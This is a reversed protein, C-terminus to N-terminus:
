ESLSRRSNMRVVTTAFNWSARSRRSRASASICAIASITSRMSAFSSANFTISGGSRVKLPRTFFPFESRSMLSNKCAFFLEPADIFSTISDACVFYPVVLRTRFANISEPLTTSFSPRNRHDAFSKDAVFSFPADGTVELSSSPGNNQPTPSALTASPFAGRGVSFDIRTGTSKSGEPAGDISECCVSFRDNTWYFREHWLRFIDATPWPFHGLVGFSFLRRTGKIVRKIRNKGHRFRADQGEFFLRGLLGFAAFLRDSM